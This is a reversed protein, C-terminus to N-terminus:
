PGQRLVHLSKREISADTELGNFHAAQGHEVHDVGDPSPQPWRGTMSMWPAHRMESM